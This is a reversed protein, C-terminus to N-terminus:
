SNVTPVVKLRLRNLGKYANFNSVYLPKCLLLSYHLGMSMNLSLLQLILSLRVTDGTVLITGTALEATVTHSYEQAVLPHHVKFALFEGASTQLGGFMEPSPESALLM